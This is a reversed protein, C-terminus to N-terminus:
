RSVAKERLQAAAPPIVELARQIEESSTQYGLSLRLAGKAQNKLYGMASLVSSAEQAGSSCSAAASAEVGSQTMLFLLAEAEIDEIILHCSGAIRRSDKSGSRALGDIQAMLGEALCANLKGAKKVLEGRENNSLQAAEAMAVAGGTNQTGSRMDREQKGGLIQPLVQVGEKVILVGMGMPGGFKHGSFSLLDYGRALEAVDIWLHAQIADTHLLAQPSKSKVLQLAEQLPQIIGTENNVSMVSVLRTDPELAAELQNLDITGEPTAGVVRGGLKQVPRLVAPHELASCIVKSSNNTGIGSGFVALNDAETGGGCFVVEAPKVGFSEAIKDRSDELIRRARQATKHSGSPNAGGCGELYGLMARLAQPRLPTSAANDLYATKEAM